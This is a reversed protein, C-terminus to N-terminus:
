KEAVSHNYTRRRAASFLSVAIDKACVLWSTISRFSIRDLGTPYKHRLLTLDVLIVFETFIINNNQNFLLFYVFRRIIHCQWWWRSLNKWKIEMQTSRDYNRPCTYNRVILISSKRIRISSLVCKLPPEMDSLRFIIPSDTSSHVINLIYKTMILPGYQVCIHVTFTNFHCSHMFNCQECTNAELDYFRAYYDVGFHFHTMHSPNM